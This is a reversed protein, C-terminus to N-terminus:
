LKLRIRIEELAPVMYEEDKHGRCLIFEINTIVLIFQLCHAKFCRLVLACSSFFLLKLIFLYQFSSYVNTSYERVVQNM